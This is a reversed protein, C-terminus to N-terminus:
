VEEDWIPDKRRCTSPMMSSNILKHSLYYGYSILTEMPAFYVITPDYLISASGSFEEDGQWMLVALPIKPLAAFVAGRDGMKIQKGNLLAAAREFAELDYQFANVLPALVQKQFAPFFLAGGEPVEKLTIWQGSLEVDQAYILYHLILLGTGIACHSGSEQNFIEGKEADVIYPRSFFPVRYQNLHASYEVNAHACVREPNKAKIDALAKHFAAEYGM